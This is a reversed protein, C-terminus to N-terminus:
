FKFFAGPSVLLFIILLNDHTHLYTRLFSLALVMHEKVTNKSINLQTAIEDYTLGDLKSLKFVVRRTPPLQDIAEMLKSHIQKYELQKDPVLLEEAAELPDAAIVNHLKKRLLSVIQNKGLVFLFNNFDVVDILAEKKKWIKLFVDQTIEEALPSSKIYALAHSYVKNWYLDVLRTFAKQDGGAILRLLANEDLLYLDSL